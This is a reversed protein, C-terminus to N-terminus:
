LVFATLAVIIYLVPYIWRCNIDIRKALQEKGRSSLTATFVSQILTLFILVSSGLVFIDMRTMYSIKPLSGSVVFRYAILTLMSTTAISIQSSSLKQDLWFAMWSMMIILVLPIVFVLIYFGSERKARFSFTVAPVDPTDKMISYTGKNFQWDLIKWDPLSLDDSIGSRTEPDPVLEIDKATNGLAIIKVDFTQTDFPFDKFEFKQTFDGFIRQFFTATSDNSLTVDDGFSKSINLRNSITILPEWENEANKLVSGKGALRPDNWKAILYIDAKMIEGAANIESINNIVISIYVKTKGYPNPPTGSNDQGKSNKTM